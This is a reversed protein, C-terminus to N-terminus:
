FSQSVSEIRMVSTNLVLKSYVVKQTNTPFGLVPEAIELLRAFASMGLCSSLAATTTTSILEKPCKVELWRYCCLVVAMIVRRIVTFGVIHSM